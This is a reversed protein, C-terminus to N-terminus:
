CPQSTMPQLTSTSSGCVCMHMCACVATSSCTHIRTQAALAKHPDSFLLNKPLPSTKLLHRRSTLHTQKLRHCSRLLLRATLLPRAPSQLHLQRSQPHLRFTVPFLTLILSRMLPSPNKWAGRRRARIRRRARRWSHLRSLCRLYSPPTRSCTRADRRSPLCSSGLATCGRPHNSIWSVATRRGASWSLTTSGKWKERRWQCRWFRRSLFLCMVPDFSSDNIYPDLFQTASLINRGHKAISNFNQVKVETFALSGWPQRPQITVWLWCLEEYLLGYQEGPCLSVCLEAWSGSM